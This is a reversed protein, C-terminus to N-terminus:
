SSLKKIVQNLINTLIPEQIQPPLKHVNWYRLSEVISSVIYDAAERQVDPDAKTIDFDSEQNLTKQRSVIASVLEIIRTSSKALQNAKDTAVKHAAALNAIESNAMSLESLLKMMPKEASAVTNNAPDVIRMFAEHYAHSPGSVGLEVNSIHGKSYGTRKAIESLSLGSALRLAKYDTEM